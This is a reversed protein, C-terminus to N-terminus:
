DVTSDVQKLIRFLSLSFGEGVMALDILLQLFMFMPHHGEFQFDTSPGPVNYYCDIM